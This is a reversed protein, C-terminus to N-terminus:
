ANKLMERLQCAQCVEHQAAEGCNKCPHIKEGKSKEHEKMLPSLALFSSIIGQKTGPYKNEFDNLMELIHMRYGERAYPCEAFDVQFRKLFAYLKTEKETCFYLPKVRQVFFDIERVGTKPGLHAALKSNAKFLNMVIAQAEDDLNHGTILKTAKKKKAHLNLLYRRWVGCLHCPKQDVDRQHTEDLSYGLEKKMSIVQLPIQQERCFKRLNKLTKTRYNKIGEDIALAWMKGSAGCSELYKKVLYLATLSDKGGSAAVCVRDDRGILQYRSITQFVKNEFYDLFHLRCLAGHQLKIVAKRGCKCEM